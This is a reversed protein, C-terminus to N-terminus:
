GGRAQTNRGLVAVDLEQFVIKLADSQRRVTRVSSTDIGLQSLTQAINASIGTLFCEAGLLRVAKAMRLFHDATRTDLLSVGTLDIIVHSAQDLVVRDLLRDMMQVSRATDVTGIVPLTIVGDWISIIPTSLESLVTSQRDAIEENKRDLELIQTKNRAKTEAYEDILTSVAAELASLSDLSEDPQIRVSFDDASARGVAELIRELRGEFNM